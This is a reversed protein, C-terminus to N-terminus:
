VAKIFRVPVDIRYGTSAGFLRVYSDIYYVSSSGGSKNTMSLTSGIQQFLYTSTNLELSSQIQFNIFTGRPGAITETGKSLKELNEKVFELDTGLSLYYSAINDDDIYSVRAVTGQPSVIKGFCNDIELVYQTEVLDSDLALAPSVETSDIGQDIRVVAGGNLTEGLLIGTITEFLTETDSDVAVTFAGNAHLANSPSYVQNIKLVPLYLLNTRPISILKSNGISTNNTFAEFIPTQMLSLDYYASGSPHDKNYTAYNIEDDFIAFKAIRFSGDSKALRMRGADTLVADIIINGSNDLFAM